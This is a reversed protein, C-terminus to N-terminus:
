LWLGHDTTEHEQIYALSHEFDFQRAPEAEAVDPVEHTAFVSQLNLRNEVFSDIRHSYDESRLGSFDFRTESLLWDSREWFHGRQHSAPLHDIDFKEILLPLPSKLGSSGDAGSVDTYGLEADAANVQAGDSFWATTEGFITASQEPQDGSYSVSTLNLAILGADSARSLEGTESVGNSNRDNWLYFEGFSDDAASLLGDGNSDFAALGELDTRAGPMDQLFSIESGNSIVGDSNRDLALVSDGADIWTGTEVRTDSDYDFRVSTDSFYTGDGDLDFIIPALGGDILANVDATTWVTGDDFVIQEVEDGSNGGLTNWITIQDSTGAFTIVLDSTSGPGRSLIVDSTAYGHILLKDTDNLGNDEIEDVGDGISFVYTDSGDLGHLVDNGLGGELTNTGKFGQVVDDGSTQDQAILLAQLDATSWVTGDDLVM